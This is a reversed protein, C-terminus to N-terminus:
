KQKTLKSVKQLIKKTKEKTAGIRSHFEWDEISNPGNLIENIANNIVILEEKSFNDM